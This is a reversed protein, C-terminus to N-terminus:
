GSRKATTMTGPTSAPHTSHEPLHHLRLMLVGFMFVFLVLFIGMAIMLPDRQEAGAVFWPLHVGPFQAQQETM